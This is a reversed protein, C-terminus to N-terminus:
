HIGDFRTKASLYTAHKGHGGSVQRIISSFTIVSPPGCIHDPDIVKWACDKRHSKLCLKLVGDNKLCIFVQAGVPLQHSIWLAERLLSQAALFFLRSFKFM